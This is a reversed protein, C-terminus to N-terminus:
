GHPPTNEQAEKGKHSPTQRLPGRSTGRIFAVSNDWICSCFRPFTACVKLYLEAEQAEEETTGPLPLPQQFPRSALFLFRQDIEGQHDEVRM